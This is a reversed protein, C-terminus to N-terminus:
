WSRGKNKSLKLRCQLRETKVFIQWNNNKRVAKTHVVVDWKNCLGVCHMKQVAKTKNCLGVKTKKVAKAQVVIQRKNCLGSLSPHSCLSSRTRFCLCLALRWWDHVHYKHIKILWTWWQRINMVGANFFFSQISVQDTQNFPAGNQGTPPWTPQSTSNNAHDTYADMQLTRNIRQTYM